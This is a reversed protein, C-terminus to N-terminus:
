YIPIFLLFLVLMNWGFYSNLYNIGSLKAYTYNM